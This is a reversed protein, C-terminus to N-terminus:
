RALVIPESHADLLELVTPANRHLARTAEGQENIGSCTQQIRLHLFRRREEDYPEEGIFHECLGRRELYAEVDPPIAGADPPAAEPDPAVAKLDPKAMEAARTEERPRATALRDLEAGTASWYVLDGSADDVQTTIRCGGPFIGHRALLWVRDAKRFTYVHCHDLGSTPIFRAIYYPEGGVKLEEFQPVGFGKLADIWARVEAFNDSSERGEDAALAVAVGLVILAHILAVRM